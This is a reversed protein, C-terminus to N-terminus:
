LFVFTGRCCVSLERLAATVTKFDTADVYGVADITINNRPFWDNVGAEVYSLTELPQELIVGVTTWNYRRMLSVMPRSVLGYFPNCRVFTNYVTKDSLILSQAVYGILPINWQSALLGTSQCPASCDPGIVGAVRYKTQLTVLATLARKQDCESPQIVYDLSYNAPLIPNAQHDQLAIPLSAGLHKYSFVTYGLDTKETAMFGITITDALAVKNRLIFHISIILAFSLSFQNRGNM